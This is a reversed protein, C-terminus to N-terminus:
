LENFPSDDSSNKNQIAYKRWNTTTHKPSEKDEPIDVTEAPELSIRKQEIDINIIRVKMMEGVNEKELQEKAYKMKSKPVLGTIGKFINVFVGFKNVSEIIGEVAENESLEEAILDWPNPQLAKLSLSIKQSEINIKIIQAEVVDGKNLVEGPTKIRKGRSMESIPILGTVGPQIEVFSGFAANNLVKCTVTEGVELKEAAEFFPNELLDKISLSIKEKKIGIIKADIVDGLSLVDSPSDIKRWSIKSIHILGEVGGIDIFAGFATIRTVKGKITDGVNVKALIEKRAEILARDLIVRRSIVVNRGRDQYDIIEFDFTKGIFKNTDSIPKSDMQSMPCFSRAGLVDVAFGGKIVSLVKGEVPIKKEFADSLIYDSVHAKSLSKAIVTETETKKVIYGKLLDGVAFPLKGNRDIYDGIEAYADNKGGYSVFITTDTIKVIEGEVVDGEDFDQSKQISDEILESFSKEEQVTEESVKTEKSDNSNEHTVM